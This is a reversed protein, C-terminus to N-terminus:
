LPPNDDNTITCTIAEGEALTISGGLVAPCSQGYNSVGLMSIFTYGSQQTENITHAINALTSTATNNQVLSGDVLLPFQVPQKIGGNNNIVSKILTINGPLDNNTITCTKADGPNLTIQGSADCDGSFSAVYGSIGTETVIYNDAAFTTTAGSTVNTVVTGVVQLQFDAIVNNGGNDNTIIKVVTLEATRTEQGSCLFNPNNRAQIARFAIDLTAGDTQTLNNLTTGDCDVGPNVTPDVGQGAAVPDLTLTGFCWAKGIYRTENGPIPGPANTWINNLSDALAVSFTSTTALETLTKVGGSISNEDDEFVNDGDDAWWFMQLNDALEGDWTDNIDEAVDGAGLEPENSSRDDDSTLSIDMCAYADNTGAHLSITDEGEDDPKLDTFNFFLLGNVLDSALWTTSTSVAGNYYSENDVKLDIEGATFTNDASVETDSLFAGTGVTVVAIVALMMGLSLLIKKM